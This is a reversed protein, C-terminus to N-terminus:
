GDTEIRDPAAQRQATLGSNFQGQTQSNNLVHFPAKRDIIDRRHLIVNTDGFISNKLQNLATTLAGQEDVLRMIVGTLGLYQETPKQCSKIDHTSSEFCCCPMMVDGAGVTPTLLSSPAV